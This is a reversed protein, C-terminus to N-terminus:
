SPASPETWFRPGRQQFQFGNAQRRFGGPQTQGTQGQHPTMVRTMLNAIRDSARKKMADVQDSSLNGDKSAQDIRAYAADTLAKVVDQQKNGALDALSTGQLKNRLEDVSLGLVDAAPKLFGGPGGFRGGLGGAKHEPLGLENRTDQFGQKLKDVSVGLKGALTSMFKDHMAARDGHGDNTPTPTAASTQQIGAVGLGAATVMIAAIGALVTRKALLTNV